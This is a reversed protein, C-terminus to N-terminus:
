ELRLCADRLISNDEQLEETRSRCVCVCVCVSVCVHVCVCVCVLVCVGYDSCRRRAQTYAAMSFFASIGHANSIAINSEAAAAQMMCDDSSSSCGNHEDLKVFIGLM